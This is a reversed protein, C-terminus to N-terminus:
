FTPNFPYHSSTNNIYQLWGISTLVLKNEKINFQMVVPWLQYYFSKVAQLISAMFNNNYQEKLGLSILGASLAMGQSEVWYNLYVM